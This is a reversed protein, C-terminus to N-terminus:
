DFEGRYHKIMVALGYGLAIATVPSFLVFVFLPMLSFIMYFEVSKVKFSKYILYGYYYVLGIFGSNLIIRGGPISWIQYRFKQGVESGFSTSYDFIPNLGMIEYKGFPTSGMLFKVFNEKSIGRISELASLLLGNQDYFALQLSNPLYSYGFILFLFTYITNLIILHNFIVNTIKKNYKFHIFTLANLILFYPLSGKRQAIISFLFPLNIIWFWKFFNEKKNKMLLFAAAVYIGITLYEDGAFFIIGRIGLIERYLPSSHPLLIAFLMKMTWSFIALKGLKITEERSLSYTGIYFIYVLMYSRVIFLLIDIALMEPKLFVIGVFSLPVLLLPLRKNLIRKTTKIYKLWLVFLYFTCIDLLKIGLIEKTYISPYQASNFRIIADPIVYHHTAFITIVLFIVKHPKKFYILGAIIIMFTQVEPLYAIRLSSLLAFLFAIIYFKYKKM